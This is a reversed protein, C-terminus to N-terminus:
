VEIRWVCIRVVAVRLVPRKVVDLRFVFATKALEILLKFAFIKVSLAELIVVDEILVPWAAIKNVLALEIVAFVSFPCCTNAVFRIADVTEVPIKFTCVSNATL